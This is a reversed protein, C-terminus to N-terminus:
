QCNAAQLTLKEYNTKYSSNNEKMQMAEFHMSKYAYLCWPIDLIM